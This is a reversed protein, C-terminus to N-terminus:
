IMSTRSVTHPKNHVLTDMGTGGGGGGGGTVSM